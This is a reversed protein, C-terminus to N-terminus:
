CWSTPKRKATSKSLRGGLFERCMDIREDAWQRVSIHIIGRWVFKRPDVSAIRGAAYIENVLESPTLDALDLNRARRWEDLNLTEEPPRYTSRRYTAEHHATANV